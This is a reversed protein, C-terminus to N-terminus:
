ALKEKFYEFIAILDDIRNHLEPKSERKLMMCTDVAHGILEERHDTLKTEAEQVKRLLNETDYIM